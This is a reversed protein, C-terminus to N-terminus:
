LDHPTSDIAIKDHSHCKWMHRLFRVLKRAPAGNKRGQSNKNTEEIIQFNRWQGLQM